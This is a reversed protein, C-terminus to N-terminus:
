AWAKGVVAAKWYGQSVDYEFVVEDIANPATSLAIGAGGATKTGTPLTLIRSGTADQIFDITVSIIRNATTPVNSFALTTNSSMTVNFKSATSLDLTTTAKTASVSASVELYHKVAYGALNLDGAMPVSGDSRFNGYLTDAQSRPVAQATAATSNAVAFTQSASGALAAFNAQAYSLNVVSSTSVPAASSVVALPDGGTNTLVNWSTGGDNVVTLSNHATVTSVVPATDGSAAAITLTGSSTAGYFTFVVSGAAASGSLPLTFTGSAANNYITIKGSDTATLTYTTTTITQSGNRGIVTDALVGSSSSPSVWAPTGGSVTLIQGATGVGLREAAGSAGGVILDGAATMPNLLYGPNATLVSQATFAGYAYDGVLWSQATTGEQGRIVTLSVGTIATVYVIEYVTGTAKDNLTLPFYSGPPVIPLNAGSALTITTATSSIASGLSTSVNNAFVFTSM